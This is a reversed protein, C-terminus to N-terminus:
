VRYQFEEGKLRQREAEENALAMKEEVRRTYDREQKTAIVIEEDKSKLTM